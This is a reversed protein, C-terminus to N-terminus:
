KKRQALKATIEKQAKKIAYAKMDKEIRSQELKKKHAAVSEAESVNENKPKEVEVSSVVPSAVPTTAPTTATEEAKPFQRESAPTFRDILSMRGKPATKGSLPRGM